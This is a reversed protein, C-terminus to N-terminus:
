TIWTFEKDNDGSNEHEQPSDDKDDDIIIDDQSIEVDDKWKIDDDDDDDDGIIEEDGDEKMDDTYELYNGEGPYMEDPSGEEGNQDM